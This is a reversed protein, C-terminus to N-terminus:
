VFKIDLIDNIIGHFFPLQLLLKIGEIDQEEL